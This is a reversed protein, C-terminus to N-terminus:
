TKGIIEVFFFIAAAGVFFTAGTILPLFSGTIGALM